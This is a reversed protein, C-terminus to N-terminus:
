WKFMSVLFYVQGRHREDSKVRNSVNTVLEEFDRKNM